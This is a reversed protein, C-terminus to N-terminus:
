LITYGNGQFVKLVTPGYLKEVKNEQMLESLTKGRLNRTKTSMLFDPGVADKIDYTGNHFKLPVKLGDDFNAEMDRQM